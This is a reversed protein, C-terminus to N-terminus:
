SDIKTKRSYRISNARSEGTLGSIVIKALSHNAVFRSWTSSSLIYGQIQIYLFMLPVKYTTCIMSASTSLPFHFLKLPAVAAGISILQGSHVHIGIDMFM